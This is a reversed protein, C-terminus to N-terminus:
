GTEIKKKKEMKNIRCWANEKLYLIHQHWSCGNSLYVRLHKHCEVEEIEVGLMCLHPHM